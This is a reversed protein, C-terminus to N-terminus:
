SWGVTTRSGVSDYAHGLFLDWPLCVMVGSYPLVQTCPLPLVLPPESVAVIPVESGKQSIHVLMSYSGVVQENQLSTCSSGSSAMTRCRGDVLHSSTANKQGESCAVM